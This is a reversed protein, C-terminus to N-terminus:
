AYAEVALYTQNHNGYVTDSSNGYVGLMIIDGEKVTMITSPIVITEAYSANAYYKQARAVTDNWSNASIQAYKIGTTGGVCIQASVRVARVGAPILIGNSSITLAGTINYGFKTFAVKVYSGSVGLSQNTGGLSLSVIDVTQLTQHGKVHMDGDIRVDKRAHITWDFDATYEEEAAKGFSIGIGGPYWGMVAGEAKLTEEAITTGFTDSLEVKMAYSRSTVMDGIMVIQDINYAVTITRALTWSSLDSRMHYIKATITNKTDVSSGSAALEIKAYDGNDVPTGANNAREVSFRSITPDKYEIVTISQTKTATRGRSDVVTVEVTVNGSTNIMGIDSNNKTVTTGLAKITYGVISSYYAGSAAVNVHLRSKNQVYVNWTSPVIAGTDTLTVASITPVISAPVDCSTSATRKGLSVGNSTFTEATVYLTGRTGNPVGTCFDMPVLWTISNQAKTAITGTSPGWSYTVTHHFSTDAAELRITMNSGITQVSAGFTPVTARPIKDLIVTASCNTTSFTLGPIGGAASIPISKSGDSNHTVQVSHSGVRVWTDDPYLTIPVSFTHTSGNITISFSGTGYTTGTSSSSKKYFLTATVSSRNDITNPTSSWDIRATIYKNGTTGTFYGSAM